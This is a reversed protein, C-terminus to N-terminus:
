RSDRGFCRPCRPGEPFEKFSEFARPYIKGCVLKGEAESSMHVMGTTLNKIVCPEFPKAEIDVDAGSSSSSSSSTSLAQAVAEDAPASSAAPTSSSAVKFAGSRTADPDAFFGWLSNARHQPAFVWHAAM